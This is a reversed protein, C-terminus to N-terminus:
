NEMKKMNGKEEIKRNQRKTMKKMNENKTENKKM